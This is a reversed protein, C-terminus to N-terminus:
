FWYSQSWRLFCWTPGECRDVQCVAVDRYEMLHQRIEPTDQSFDVGASPLDIGILLEGPLDVPQGVTEQDAVLVTKAVPVLGAENAEEALTVSM